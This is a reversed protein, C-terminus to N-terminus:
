PPIGCSCLEMAPDSLRDATLWRHPRFYLSTRRSSRVLAALILWDEVLVTLRRMRRVWFRLVVFITALFSFVFSIITATLGGNSLANAPRSPLQRVTIDM